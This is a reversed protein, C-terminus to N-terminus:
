FNNNCYKVQADYYRECSYANGGRAYCQGRQKYSFERCNGWTQAIKRGKKNHQRQKEKKIEWPNRGLNKKASSSSPNFLRKFEADMKKAEWDSLAHQSISRSSFVGQGAAVAVNLSFTFTIACLAIFRSVTM